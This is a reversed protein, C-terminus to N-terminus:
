LKSTESDTNKVGIGLFIITFGDIPVIGFIGAKTHYRRREGFGLLCKV